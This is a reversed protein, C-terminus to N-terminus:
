KAATAAEKQRQYARRSNARVQELWRARRCHYCRHPRRGRGHQRYFQVRCDPCVLLERPSM